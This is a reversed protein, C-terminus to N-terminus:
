DMLLLFEDQRRRRMIRAMEARATALAREADQRRKVHQAEIQANKLVDAVMQAVQAANFQAPVPIGVRGGDLSLVQVSKTGESMVVPQAQEIVPDIARHIQERLLERERREKEFLEDRAKTARRRRKEDGPGIDGIPLVPVAVNGTAAFVDEGTETAAMYGTAVVTGLASFTDVGTETASLFGSLVNTGIALFTDVGTEVAGLTGFNTNTGTAAFVDIGTETAAMVGTLIVAGTAAFVDIGSETAAMAGVNVVSGTSAFSDVGSETAALYGSLVNIGTAAFTDVGTETAAMSGVVASWYSQNWRGESWRAM